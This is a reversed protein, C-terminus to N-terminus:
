TTSVKPLPMWHTIRIDDSGVDGGTFWGKHYLPGQGNQYIGFGMRGRADLCWVINSVGSKNCDPLREDVSTWTSNEILDAAAFLLNQMSSGIKNRYPSNAIERLERAIKKGDVNKRDFKREDILHVCYEDGKYCFCVSGLLKSSPYGSIIEGETPGYLIRDVWRTHQHRM